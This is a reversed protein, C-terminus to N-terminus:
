NERILIIDKRINYGVLIYWVFEARKDFRENLVIEIKVQKDYMVVNIIKIKVSYM